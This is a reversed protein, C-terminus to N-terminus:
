SKLYAWLIVVICCITLTVITFRLWGSSLWIGENNQLHKALEKSHEELLKKEAKIHNASCQNVKALESDDVKAHIVTNREAKVIANSIGDVINDASDKAALLANFATRERQVTHKLSGHIDRLEEKLAQIEKLLNRLEVMQCNVEQLMGDLEQLDQKLEEEPTYNALRERLAATDPQKM